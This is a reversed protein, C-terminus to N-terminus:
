KFYIWPTSPIVVNNPNIENSIFYKTKKLVKNNSDRMQKITETRLSCENHRNVNLM